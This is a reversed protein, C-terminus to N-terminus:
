VADVPGEPYKLEKILNITFDFPVCPDFPSAPETMVILVTQSSTGSPKTTPVPEVVVSVTVGGSTVLIALVQPVMVNAPDTVPDYYNLVRDTNM